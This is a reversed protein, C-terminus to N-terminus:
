LRQALDARKRQYEEGTILGKEKLQALEHLRTAASGKAGRRSARVVLWVILVPIGVVVLLTILWHWIAFSGM